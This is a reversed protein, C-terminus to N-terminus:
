ISIEGNEIRTKFEDFKKRRAKYQSGPGNPRFIFNMKPLYYKDFTKRDIQMSKCMDSISIWDDSMQVSQLRNVESALLQVQNHLDLIIQELQSM